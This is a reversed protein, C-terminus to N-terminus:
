TLLTMGRVRPSTIALARRMRNIAHLSTLALLNNVLLLLLPSPLGVSHVLLHMRLLRAGGIGAGFREKSEPMDRSGMGRQQLRMSALRSSWNPDAQCVSCADGLELLPLVHFLSSNPLALHVHRMRVVLPHTLLFFPALPRTLADHVSSRELESQLLLM